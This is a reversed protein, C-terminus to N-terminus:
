PLLDRVEIWAQIEPELAVAAGLQVLISLRNKIRRLARIDELGLEEGVVHARFRHAKQVASQLSHDLSALFWNTIVSPDLVPDGPVVGVNRIANLRARMSSQDFDARPVADIALTDYIATACRSWALGAASQRSGFADLAIDAAAFALGLWNVEASLPRSANGLLARIAEPGKELIAETETV